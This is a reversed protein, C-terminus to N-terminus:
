FLLPLRHRQGPTVLLQLCPPVIEASSRLETPRHAGYRRGPAVQCEQRAEVRDHPVNVILYDAAINRFGLVTVV